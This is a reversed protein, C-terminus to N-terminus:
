AAELSQSLSECVHTCDYDPDAIMAALLGGSRNHFISPLMNLVEAMWQAQMLFEGGTIFAKGNCVVRCVAVDEEDKYAHSNYRIQVREGLEEDDREDYCSDFGFFSVDFYGMKVSLDFAASATTPGHHIGEDGDVLHFIQVDQGALADFVGPDCNSALIAKTAGAAMDKLIPQPDVCFLTAEIGESKLWQFVSGCAWIDGKWTRLEDLQERASKGGGVM